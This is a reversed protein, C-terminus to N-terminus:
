PSNVYVTKLQEYTTMVKSIYKQTEKFPPVGNYKDVNGPGANYAALALEINNDYRELMYSLYKTGGDINQKPDFPDKVGLGNATKPMLQMLGQAGVRSVAKSEFNSEHKIVARILDTHVNYKKAANEIIADYTNPLLLKEVPASEQISSVIIITDPTISATKVTSKPPVTEFALTNEIYSNQNDAYSKELTMTFISLFCSLLLAITAITFTVENQIKQM